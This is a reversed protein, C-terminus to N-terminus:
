LLPHGDKLPNYIPGYQDFPNAPNVRFTRLVIRVRAFVALIRWEGALHGLGRAALGCM